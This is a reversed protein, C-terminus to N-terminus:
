LQKLWKGRLDYVKGNVLVAFWNNDIRRSNAVYVDPLRHLVIGWKGELNEWLVTEVVRDPISIKVLNGEEM